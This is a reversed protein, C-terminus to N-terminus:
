QIWSIKAWGNGYYQNVGTQVTNSIATPYNSGSQLVFNTGGAGSVYQCSIGTNAGGGKYGGGGGGNGERDGPRPSGDSYVGPGEGTANRGNLGFNNASAGAAAIATHFAYGPEGANGGSAIPWPNEALLTCGGGGGAVVYRPDLTNYTFLNVITALPYNSVDGDIIDTGGGGGTGPSWTSGNIFNASTGSTNSGAGGAGGNPWGGKKQKIFDKEILTYKNSTQTYAATGDGQEGVRVTLEKGAPFIFQGAALGGRGGLAAYSKSYNVANGGSAGVAKLEYCGGYNPDLKVAVAKGTFLFVKEKVRIVPKAQGPPATSTLTKFTELAASFEDIKETLVTINYSLYPEEASESSGVENIKMYPRTEPIGELLGAIESCLGSLVQAENVTNHSPNGIVIDAQKELDSMADEVISKAEDYPSMRELVISYTNSILGVPKDDKFINRMTTVTVTLSSDNKGLGIIRFNGGASAFVESGNRKVIVSDGSREVGVRLTYSYGAPVSIAYGSNKEKIFYLLNAFGGEKILTINELAITPQPANPQPHSSDEGIVECALVALVISFLASFKFFCTKISTRM